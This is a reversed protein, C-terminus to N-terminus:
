SVGLEIRQGAKGKDKLQRPLKVSAKRLYFGRWHNQDGELFHPSDYDDPFVISPPNNM